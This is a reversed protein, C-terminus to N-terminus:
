RKQWVQKDRFRREIRDPHNSCSVVAFKALEVRGSPLTRTRGVPSLSGLARFQYFLTSGAPLEDADVKVTFDKSADTGSQGSAIIRTMEEDEALQWHVKVSRSAVVSVRTWLIVSQDTPDGSAIGHRFLRAEHPHAVVPRGRIATALLAMGALIAQLFRRRLM